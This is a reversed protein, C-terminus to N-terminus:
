KCVYKIIMGPRNGKGTGYPRCYPLFVVRGTEKGLGTPVVTHYLHINDIWLISFTIRTYTM